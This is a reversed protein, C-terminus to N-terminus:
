AHQNGRRSARLNVPEASARAARRSMWAGQAAAAAMAAGALGAASAPRFRAWAAAIVLASGALAAGLSALSTATGVLSSAIGGVFPLHSALLPLFSLVCWGGAWMLAAGTGRLLWKMRDAKRRALDLMAGASRQGRVLMFLTPQRRGDEFADEDRTRSAFWPKLTPKQDGRRDLSALISVGEPPSRIASFSIRVDGVVPTPPLALDIMGGPRRRERAGGGVAGGAADADGEREDDLYRGVADSVELRAAPSGGVGLRPQQQEQEMRREVGLDGREEFTPTGAASLYIARTRREPLPAVVGSDRPAVDPVDLPEWGDLQHLLDPPVALGNSSLMADSAFTDTTGPPLRPNPNFYRRNEFASSSVRHSKWRPQYSYTTRREVQQESVRRESVHKIEEWQYAETHRRFCLADKLGVEEFVDDGVGSATSITSSLHVLTHGDTSARELLSADDGAGLSLVRRRASALMSETRATRGENWWLLGTSGALLALGPVVAGFPNAQPANGARRTPRYIYETRTLQNGGGGIHLQARTALPLCLVLVRWWAASGVM